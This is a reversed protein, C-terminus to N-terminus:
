VSLVVSSVKLVLCSKCKLLLWGTVDGAMQRDKGGGCGGEALICKHGSVASHGRQGESESYVLIREWNFGGM